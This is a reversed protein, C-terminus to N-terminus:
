GEDGVGTASFARVALIRAQPAVGTLRAHAAIAGAMGTGHHSPPELREVEDFRDVIVGALEPHAADIGNDIVAVLVKGGTALRHAEPVRLKALAYQDDSLRSGARDQQLTFRYNPQAVGAGRDAELARVVDSVSRQDTIRWRHFTTGTIGIDQSELRTLRHRRALADLAQPSLNSPLGLLVE